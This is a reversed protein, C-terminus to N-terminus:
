LLVLSVSSLHLNLACKLSSPNLAKTESGFAKEGHLIWTMLNGQCKRPNIVHYKDAQECGPLM